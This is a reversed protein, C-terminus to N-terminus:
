VRVAPNITKLAKKAASRIESTMIELFLCWDLIKEIEEEYGEQCQRCLCSKSSRKKRKRWGEEIRAIAKASEPIAGVMGRSIAQNFEKEIAPDLPPPLLAPRVKDDPKRLRLRFDKTKQLKLLIIKAARQNPYYAYPRDEIDDFLLYEWGGLEVCIGWGLDQIKSIFFLAKPFYIEDWYIIEM